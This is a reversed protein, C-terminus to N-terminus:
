QPSSMLKEHAPKAELHHARHQAERSLIRPCLGGPFPCSEQQLAAKYCDWHRLLGSWLKGKRRKLNASWFPSKFAQFFQETILNLYLKCSVNLLQKFAEKFQEAQGGGGESSPWSTAQNMRVCEKSMSYLGTHGLGGSGCPGLHDRRHWQSM